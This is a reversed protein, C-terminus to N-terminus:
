HVGTRMRYGYRSSLGVSEEPFSFGVLFIKTVRPGYLEELLGWRGYFAEWFYGGLFLFLFIDPFLFAASLPQDFLEFDVLTWKYLSPWFPQLLGKAQEKFIVVEKSSCSIQVWSTGGILVLPHGILGTISPFSLSCSSKHNFCSTTCGDDEGQLKGRM